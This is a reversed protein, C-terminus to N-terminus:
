DMNGWQYIIDTAGVVVLMRYIEDKHREWSLSGQWPSCARMFYEEGNWEFSFGAGLVCSGGDGEMRSLEYWRDMIKQLEAPNNERDWHYLTIPEKPKGYSTFEIEMNDDLPYASLNWANGLEWYCGYKKFIKDLGETKKGGVYNLEDYLPGEFSMSLIHEHNAYEFYDFPNMNEEVIFKPPEDPKRWDYENRVRKNNAYISVGSDLHNKTLYIMIDSVFQEIDAKTLKKM